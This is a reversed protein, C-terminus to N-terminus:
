TGYDMNGNRMYSHCPTAPKGVPELPRLDMKSVGSGTSVVTVTKSGHTCKPSCSGNGCIVANDVNAGSLVLRPTCTPTDHVAWPQMTWMRWLELSAAGDRAGLIM